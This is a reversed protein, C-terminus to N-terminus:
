GCLAKLVMEPVHNLMIILMMKMGLEATKSRLVKATERQGTEAM